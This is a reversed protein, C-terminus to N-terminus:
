KLKTYGAQEAQSQLDIISQYDDISVNEFGTLHLVEKYQDSTKELALRLAQIMSEAEINWLETSPIVLPLGCTAESFDITIVRDLLEPWEDKIFALSVCDISAVDAHQNAVASLSNIHSGSEIVKSFFPPSHGLMAVAYRLVNMGSNSDNGNIAAVKNQCQALSTIESDASVVIHSSYYKGFCGDVDFLPVCLPHCDNQLFRMLPYGCTHGLLMDPNRLLSFDANFAIISEVPTTSDYIGLFEDFLAQWANRLKDTFAYMGCTIFRKAPTKMPISELVPQLQKSFYVITIVFFM